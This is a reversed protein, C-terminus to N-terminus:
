ERQRTSHTLANRVLPFLPQSVQWDIVPIQMQSVDNLRLRRELRATRIALRTTSDQALTPHAFDIPDPSVLLAQYGHARLRLFLHRDAAVLPSIIVILARSPFMRIPIFDLPASSRNELGVNAKSLCGMIRHLQVKGYGPFVKFM